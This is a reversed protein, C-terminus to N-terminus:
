SNRNVTETEDRLQRVAKVVDIVPVPQSPITDNGWAEEWLRLRDQIEQATVGSRLLAFFMKWRPAYFDRVMGSWLKSAYEHLDPGGWVTIQRRANREFLNKEELTTGEARAMAIWRELRNDPRTNVIADLKQMLVDAENALSDRLSGQSAAHASCAAYLKRDIHLGTAYAALDILDNKFLLSGSYRDSEKLMLDLATDLRADFFVESRPELSPRRQFTFIPHHTITRSYVAENILSWARTIGPSVSGYRACCYDVLWEQLNVPESRWGMDTLLEYIVENNEVGEPALGYGNLNGKAPDHLASPTDSAILVTSTVVDAGAVRGRLLPGVGGRAGFGLM